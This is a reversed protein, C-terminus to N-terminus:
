RYKIRITNGTPKAVLNAEEVTYIRKGEFHVNGEVDTVKVSGDPQEERFVTPTEPEGQIDTQSVFSNNIYSSEFPYGSRNFLSEFFAAENDFTQGNYTVSGNSNVTACGDPSSSPKAYANEVSILAIILAISYIEKKM